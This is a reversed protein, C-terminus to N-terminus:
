HGGQETKATKLPCAVSLTTAPEFPEWSGWGCMGDIPVLSGFPPYDNFFKM